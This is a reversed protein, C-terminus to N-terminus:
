RVARRFAARAGEPDMLALLLFFVALTVALGGAILMWEQMARNYRSKRETSNLTRQSESAVAGRAPAM